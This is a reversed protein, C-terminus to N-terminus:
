NKQQFLRFVHLYLTSTDFGLSSQPLTSVHFGIRLSTVNVEATSQLENQFRNCKTFTLTHSTQQNKKASQYQRDTRDSLRIGM